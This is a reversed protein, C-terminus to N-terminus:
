IMLRGVGEGVRQIERVRVGWGESRSGGTRRRADGKGEEM